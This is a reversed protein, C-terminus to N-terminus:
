AKPNESVAEEGEGKLERLLRERRCCDEKAAELSRGRVTAQAGEKVAVDVHPVGEAV